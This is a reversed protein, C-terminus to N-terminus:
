VHQDIFSVLDSKAAMGTHVGVAQRDKFIILAPISRVEHKAAIAQNADVDMKMIKLKGAYQAALDDLIPAIAKCPGCWSAWFDVLVPVSSNLVDNEFFADSTATITTSM